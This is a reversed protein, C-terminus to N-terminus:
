GPVLSREPVRRREPVRSGREEPVRSMGPVRSGRTGTAGPGCRLAVDEWHACNHRGWGAHRCDALSAERGSCAVGELWIPTESAADGFTNRM